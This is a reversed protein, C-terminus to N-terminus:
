GLLVVEVESGWAAGTAAEPLVILADAHALAGILHSGAGGVPRVEPREGGTYTGRLFQRKGEPSTLQEAEEGAGHPPLLTARVTPRHLEQLGMM